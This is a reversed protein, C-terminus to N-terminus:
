GQAPPLVPPECGRRAAQDTAFAVVIARLEEQTFVDPGLRAVGAQFYAFEGDCYTFASAVTRETSPLWYASLPAPQRRSEGDPAAMWPRIANRTEAWSGYSASVVLADGSIGFPAACVGFPGSDPTAEHIRWGGDPADQPLEPIIVACASQPALLPAPTGEPHRRIPQEPIPVPPGDCGTMVSASNAAAVAARLLQDDEGRSRSTEMTVLMRRDPAACPPLLVIRSGTPKEEFLLGPVGPPLAAWRSSPDWSVATRLGADVDEPRGSVSLSLWEEEGAVSERLLTCTLRHLEPTHALHQSRVENWGSMASLEARPLLGACPQLRVADAASYRGGTGTQLGALLIVVLAIAIWRERAWRCLERARGM